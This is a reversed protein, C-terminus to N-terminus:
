LGSNKDNRKISEITKDIHEKMLSEAKHSDRQELAEILRAHYHLGGDSGMISVVFQMQPELIDKIINNVKIIISNGTARALEIHFELDYRAFDALNERAGEMCRYIRSLKEIDKDDARVAALRASEVEIARRFEVIELVHSADLVLQPIISNMYVSATVERIFTGEGKRSEIIDLAALKQLAERVSIRSVGFMETLENESPIKMGKKWEGNM